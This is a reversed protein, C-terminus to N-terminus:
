GSASISASTESPTTAVAPQVPAADAQVAPFFLHVASGQGLTSEIRVEGGLQNVFGYVQALGLGTGENGKTTFFPEFVHALVKEDMGVGSDVVSVRVLPRVADLGWEAAQADSVRGTQVTISGRGLSDDIADRANAVLNVMAAVFQSEDALCWPTKEDLVLEVRAQRGAAQRLLDLHRQLAENPDIPHVDLSGRRAFLLLQDILRRANAVARESTELAKRVRVDPPHLREIIALNTRVIGLLNAFDHAIGGTLQGVAEIRESQAIRQSVRAAMQRKRRLQVVLAILLGTLAAMALAAGFVEARWAALLSPPEQTLTVVFPADGLRRYSTMRVHFLGDRAAITAAAGNGASTGFVEERTAKRGIKSDDAPYRAVRTRDEYFLEITQGPGLEMSRYLAEFHTPEVAAVAVGAFRGDVVIRRTAANFWGLGARSYVPPSIAHVLTPDDVYRRFYERDTLPASSPNPFDSGNRIRGDPGVIFIARVSPLEALRQRLLARFRPDDAAPRLAAYADVVGALVLDVADFASETHAQMLMTLARATGEARALQVRREHLLLSFVLASVLLWLLAAIGVTSRSDSRLEAIAMRAIKGCHDACQTMM